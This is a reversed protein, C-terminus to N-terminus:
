RQLLDWARLLVFVFMTSLFAIGLVIVEKPFFVLRKRSDTAEGGIEDVQLRQLVGDSGGIYICLQEEDVKGKIAVPALLLSSPISSTSIRSVALVSHFLSLCTRSQQSICLTPASSLFVSLSLSMSHRFVASRQPLHSQSIFPM